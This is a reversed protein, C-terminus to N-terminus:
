SFILVAGSQLCHCGIIPAPGGFNITSISLWYRHTHLSTVGHDLFQIALIGLQVIGLDELLHDFQRHALHLADISM